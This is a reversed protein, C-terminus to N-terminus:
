CNITNINIRFKVIEIADLYDEFINAENGYIREKGWFLRDIKTYQPHYGIINGHRNFQHILENYMPYLFPKFNNEYRESAKYDPKTSNCLILHIDSTVTYDNKIEEPFDQFLCILPYKKFMFKLNSDKQKLTEVIEIPHGHEFFVGEIKDDLLKFSPTLRQSVRDVCESITDITINGLM